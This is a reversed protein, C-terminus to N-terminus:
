ELGEMIEKTRDMVKQLNSKDKDSSILYKAIGDLGGVFDSLSVGIGSAHKMYHDICRMAFAYTMKQSNFYSAINAANTSDFDSQVYIRNHTKSSDQFYAQLSRGIVKDSM